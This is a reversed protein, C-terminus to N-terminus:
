SITIRFSNNPLVFFSPTDAAAASPNAHGLSVDGGDSAGTGSSEGGDARRAGAVENFGPDASFIRSRFTSAKVAKEKGSKRKQTAEWAEQCKPCRRGEKPHRLADITEQPPRTGAERCDSCAIREPYLCNICAVAASGGDRYVTVSEMNDLQRGCMGCFLETARAKATFKAIEEPLLIARRLERLTDGGVRSGSYNLGLINVITDILDGERRDGRAQSSSQNIQTAVLDVLPGTDLWEEGLNEIDRLSSLAASVRDRTWPGSTHARRWNNIAYDRMARRTHGSDLSYLLHIYMQEVVTRLMRM